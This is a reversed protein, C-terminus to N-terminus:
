KSKRWPLNKFGDESKEIKHALYLFTLAIPFLTIFSELVDTFSILDVRLGNEISVPIALLTQMSYIISVIVAGLSLILMFATRFFLFLNQNNIKGQLLKKNFLFLSYSVDFLFISFGSIIIKMFTNSDFDYLINIVFLFLYFNGIAVFFQVARKRKKSIEKDIATISLMYLITAILSLFFFYHLLSGINVIKEGWIVIHSIMFLCLFICFSVVLRKLFNMM